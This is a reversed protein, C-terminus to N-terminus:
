ITFYAFGRVPLSTKRSALSQCKKEGEEQRLEQDLVLRKMQQQEHRELMQNSRTNVAIPSDYPIDM